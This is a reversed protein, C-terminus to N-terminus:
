KKLHRSDRWMARLIMFLHKLRIKSDGLRKQYDIPIEQIRMSSAVAIAAMQHDVDFDVATVRGKFKALRIVRMGSVVDLIRAKFLYNFWRNMVHNAMRRLLTIKEFPRKGVVMDMNHRQELIYQLDRPMYTGDCDIFALFTYGEALAYEIAKQVASGKGLASRKIVSVGMEEAITTTQDTSFGDCVVLPLGEHQVATIMHAISAEENLTPLCVLTDHQIPNVKALYM